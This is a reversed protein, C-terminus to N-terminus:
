VGSADWGSKQGTQFIKEIFPKWGFSIHHAVVVPPKGPCPAKSELDRLEKVHEHISKGNKPDPCLLATFGARRASHAGKAQDEFVYVRPRSKVDPHARTIQEFGLEFTLPDPKGPRFINQAPCWLDDATISHRVHPLWGVRAFMSEIIRRPSGTGLAFPIQHELVLNVLTDAGEILELERRPGPGTIADVMLEVKREKYDAPTLFYHSIGRPVGTGEIQSLIILRKHIRDIVEPEARFFCSGEIVLPLYHPHLQRVEPHDAVLPYEPTDRLFWKEWNGRDFMQGPPLRLYEQSVLQHHGFDHLAESKFLTSDVDFLVAQPLPIKPFWNELPITLGQDYRSPDFPEASASRHHDEHLRNPSSPNNPSSPDNPTLM